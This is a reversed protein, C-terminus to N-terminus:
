PYGSPFCNSGGPEVGASELTIKTFEARNITNAPRYTGDDYGQVAGEDVLYGVAESYDYNFPVDPFPGDDFQASAVNFSFALAVLAALAGLKKPNM